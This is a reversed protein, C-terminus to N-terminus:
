AHANEVANRLLTITRLARAHAQVREKPTQKMSEELLSMDCGFRRAEEWADSAAANDARGSTAERIMSRDISVSEM